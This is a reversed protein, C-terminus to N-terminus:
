QNPPNNTRTSSSSGTDNIITENTKKKFLTSGKIKELLSLAALLVSLLLLLLQLGDRFSEVYSGIWTLFSGIFLHLSNINHNSVHTTDM